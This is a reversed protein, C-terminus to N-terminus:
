LWPGGSSGASGNQFGEDSDGLDPTLWVRELAGLGYGPPQRTAAEVVLYLDSEGNVVSLQPAM